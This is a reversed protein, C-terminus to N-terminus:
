IALSLQRHMWNYGIEPCIALKIKIKLVDRYAKYGDYIDKRYLYEEFDLSHMESDLIYDRRETKKLVAKFVDKFGCAIGSVRVMDLWENALEILRLGKNRSIAITSEWWPNGRTLTTTNEAREICGFLVTALETWADYKSAWIIQECEVSYKKYLQTARRNWQGWTAIPYLKKRLRNKDKGNDHNSGALYESLYACVSKEVIQVNAFRQGLDDYDLLRSKDRTKGRQEFMRTNEKEEISELIHMWATAIDCRFSELKIADM